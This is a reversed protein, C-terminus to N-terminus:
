ADDEPIWGVPAIDDETIDFTSVEYHLHRKAPPQHRRHCPISTGIWGCACVYHPKDHYQLFSGRGFNVYRHGGRLCAKCVYGSSGRTKPM